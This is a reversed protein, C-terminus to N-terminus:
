YFGLRYFGVLIFLFKFVADQIRLVYVSNLPGTLSQDLFPSDSDSKCSSFRYPNRFGVNKLVVVKSFYM